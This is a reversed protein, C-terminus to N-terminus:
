SLHITWVPIPKLVVVGVKKDAKLCCLSKPRPKDGYYLWILYNFLFSCSPSLLAVSLIEESNEDLKGRLVKIDCDMFHNRSIGSKINKSRKGNYTTKM